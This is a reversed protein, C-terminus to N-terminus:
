YVVVTRADAIEVKAVTSAGVIREVARRVLTRIEELAQETWETHRKENVYAYLETVISDTVRVRMARMRDAAPLTVGDVGILIYLQQSVRGDKAIPITLPELNFATITNIVIRGGHAFASDRQAHAPQAWALAALVAATAPVARRFTVQM